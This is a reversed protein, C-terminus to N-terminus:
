VWTSTIRTREFVPLEAARYNDAVFQLPDLMMVVEEDCITRCLVIDFDFSVKGVELCGHFIQERVGFLGLANCVIADLSEALAVQRWSCFGTIPSRQECPPGLDASLRLQVFLEVANIASSPPAAYPKFTKHLDLRSQVSIFFFM